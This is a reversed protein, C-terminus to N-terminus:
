KTPTAQGRKPRGARAAIFKGVRPTAVAVGIIVATCAAALLMIDLIDV